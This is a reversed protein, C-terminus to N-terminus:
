APSCCRSAAWRDPIEITAVPSTEAPTPVQVTRSNTASGDLEEEYDSLISHVGRTSTRRGNDHVLVIPISLDPDELVPHTM